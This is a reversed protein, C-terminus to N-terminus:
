QEAIYCFYQEKYIEALDSMNWRKMRIKVYFVQLGNFLRLCGVVDFRVLKVAGKNGKGHVFTENDESTKIQLM